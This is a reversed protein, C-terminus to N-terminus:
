HNHKIERLINTIQGKQSILSKGSAAPGYTAKVRKSVSLYWYAIGVFVFSRIVYEIVESFMAQNVEKPFGATFPIFGAIVAYGSFYLLYEKAISVAKPNIKWLAWGARISLIIVFASLFLDLYFIKKTMPFLIFHKYLYYGEYYAMFLSHLSLLPTLFTFVICLLLLWGGVTKHKEHSVEFTANSFDVGRLSSGDFNVDLLYAARLNADNLNANKLNAGELNAGSFDAHKCNTNELNANTLDAGTLSAREIKSDKINAGKLFANAMNANELDTKILSAGELNANELNAGKLIASGLNANELNISRIDAGALRANNLDAVKLNASRLNANELNVGKLYLGSLNVGSLDVGKLYLPKKAIAILQEIEERTLNAM